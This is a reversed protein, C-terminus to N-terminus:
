SVEPRGPGAAESPTGMEAAASDNPLNGGNKLPVDRVAAAASLPARPALRHLVLADLTATEFPLGELPLVFLGGPAERDGFFLCSEGVFAGFAAAERKLRGQAARLRELAPAQEAQDASLQVARRRRQAAELAAREARGLALQCLAEAELAVVMGEPAPTAVELGRHRQQEALAASEQALREAHRVRAETTALQVALTELAAEAAAGDASARAWAEFFRSAAPSSLLERVESLSAERM